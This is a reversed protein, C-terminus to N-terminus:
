ALESKPESSALQQQQYVTVSEVPIRWVSKSGPDLKHAGPFRGRLVLNYATRPHVHLIVAVEAISYFESM